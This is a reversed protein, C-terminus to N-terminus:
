IDPFRNITLVGEGGQTVQIALSKLKRRTAMTALTKM